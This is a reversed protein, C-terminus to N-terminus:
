VLSPLEIKIADPAFSLCQRALANGFAVAKTPEHTQSFGYMYGASFIDGAGIASVIDEERVVETAIHKVTDTHFVTAGKEAQTMVITTEYTHAWASAIGQSDSYDNDSIIVTDVLPLIDKAEVFERIGVRNDVDFSRFYGQPLLTIPTQWKKKMAIHQIYSPPFTPALPAICITDAKTILAEVTSDIAIPEAHEHNLCRQTRVGQHVTNEYVMTDISLPSEPFLRTMGVYRTFDPGYPAVITVSCNPLQSFIRRMFMAPGGAGTFSHTESVNHDICVHGFILINM